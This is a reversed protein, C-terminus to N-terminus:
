PGHGFPGYYIYPPPDYVGGRKQVAQHARIADLEEQLARIAKTTRALVDVSAKTKPGKNLLANRAAELEKLRQSLGAVRDLPPPPGPPPLIAKSSPKPAGRGGGIGAGGMGGVGTFLFAIDMAAGKLAAQTAEGAAKGLQGAPGAAPASLLGGAVGGAAEWDQLTGTGKYLRSATASIEDWHSAIGYIAIPLLVLGITSAAIGTLGAAFGIGIEIAIGTALGEAAGKAFAEVKEGTTPAEKQGEVSDDELAEAPLGESDDTPADPIDKYKALERMLEAPPGTKAVPKPPKPSSKKEVDVSEQWVFDGAFNTFQRYPKGEITVIGQFVIDDAGASSQSGSPDTRQVPNDRVYPYLSTGDVMGAPDASTWRGLWSAYYRAGHYYLGTEEDREKGTYRYRKLSVEAISNMAQCATTGYPHYEEYSLLGGDKDLELSASGLHNGLQYRQVPTPVNISNGNEVTRTEVLAIRQQDDMVHLTERELLLTAVSGNYKRYIEFGGLYIREDKRTGNQRETVKRVRQGLADYVYFTTEPTGNNVAQGSTVRLQDKFDWETLTVHPMATMNGHADHAYTETTQGVITSSLRNSQKTSELMSPENYGYDRTWSGSPGTEHILQEFNGVADYEYRETYNRLAQLDNPHANSGAFPYDRFNGNPPAFDFAIQGIHERGRAEILRYLADYTYDCVPEVQEGNHFIGLLAADEIRTINGAPDYAYRLDQVTAASKFIQADLGNQGPARMTKLQILRFTQDDYGYTTAAGNAYHIFTRQGKANYDINTVFPTATAAGRLNVEVKDLLNAENYIPRYTSKDPATVATPRNLADFTTTSTFTGDNPTPNQQWDVESKYDPLLERRSRRLNGKFDYAESIVVGAGDFVQFVRTRHNNAAGRSEGYATREALREVGNETVFLGTPRRLVDYTIRRAFGRSDWVRISEGTVDNLMWREGAEMSAQHVRNGLMDYDYRIVIRGLADGNQVVADRVARQNGEIDLEVRTPYKEEVITGNREFRNHAITLFPRGLTDFHAVTPTQRHVAAKNAAVREPENPAMAIRQEYWTPLYDADPLRSFFGQVDADSKPDTSGDAHLVTDNVDYTTQQWPDFVVKEWTHNPHLTAVVREAPDYFLTSSVGHQEIGYAHTPSFFPEYQRVPKGKNNYMQAGTGVWRPNLSPSAPDHPALPGPEAQIKTQAERGFGDSYVFSVQVRTQTGQTVDSVHTERAISAACAPVRDLDYLIRSTATGLHAIALLRPNAADFYEKIQRPTLDPIFTDFADGEVTGTPKGMVATGVVMGLADFRVESRNGNPDTMQRPQLVRYDYLATVTNQVADETKVVLLDHTDYDVTSSHEFPDTFTRPAFFHQRAETLEAAATAALNATNATTGYFLRGSPIWWNGNADLDVYGGQDGGKGGLVQVPDPLLHEEPMAGLKRTYVHALLGPTFALAYSAGPVALSELQGPSLMGSLDNKRYLTRVHEILRRTKDQTLAGEYAIEGAGSSILQLKAGVKEVFDSFRFVGNAGSPKYGGQNPDAHLEYTRVESSLPARYDDLHGADDIANTVSTATYTILTQTQKNRDSQVALSSQKRGYGIAVSQLVNGYKDVELTMAHGIRPDHPNREYHYRLAERAHTFFVAHRNTGQPQLLEITFNQETVTYPHAAKETGDVGYVEQRLMAGKLARCAQREEDPTLGPPLVTDALLFPPADADSWGPERYYEGPDQADLLGAFYNSV